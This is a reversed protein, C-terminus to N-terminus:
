EKIDAVLAKLFRRLTDTSVSTGGQAEFAAKAVSLSQRNQKVAATIAQSDKEKSLLPKRGRGAKTSLGQIGQQMYRKVWNNVSMECTKVIGAVEKSRRGEEKLLILQCRKRFAHSEGERYGKELETKQAESLGVM